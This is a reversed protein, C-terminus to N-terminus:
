SHQCHSTTPSHYREFAHLLAQEPLLSAETHLVFAECKVGQARGLVLVV